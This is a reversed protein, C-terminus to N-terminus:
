FSSSASKNNEEIYFVDHIIQSSAAEYIMSNFSNVKIDNIKTSLIESTEVKEKNILISEEKLKIIKERKETNIKVLAEPSTLRYNVNKSSNMLGLNELSFILFLSVLLLLTLLTPASWDNKVKKCFDSSSFRM